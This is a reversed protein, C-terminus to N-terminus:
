DAIKKWGRGEMCAHIRRVSEYTVAGNLAQDTNAKCFRLDTEYDADSAKAREWHWDQRLSCGTFLLCLTVLKLYRPLM